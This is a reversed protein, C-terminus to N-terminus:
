GKPAKHVRYELIQLEFGTFFSVSSNAPVWFPGPLTGKQPQLIMDLNSKNILNVWEGVPFFLPKSPIEELSIIVASGLDDEWPSYFSMSNESVAEGHIRFVDQAQQDNLCIFIPVLLLKKAFSKSFM